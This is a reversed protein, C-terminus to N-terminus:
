IPLAINYANTNMKISTLFHKLRNTLAFRMNKCGYSNRLISVIICNDYNKKVSLAVM